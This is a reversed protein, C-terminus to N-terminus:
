LIDGSPIYGGESLRLRLRKELWARFWEEREEAVKDLREIYYQFSVTNGNRRNMVDVGRM